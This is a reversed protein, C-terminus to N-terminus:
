DPSPPPIWCPLHSNRWGSCRDVAVTLSLVAPLPIVRTNSTAYRTRVSSHDGHHVVTDRRDNVADDTAIVSIPDSAIVIKIGDNYRKSRVWTMSLM